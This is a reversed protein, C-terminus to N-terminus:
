LNPKPTNFRPTIMMGELEQMLLKCAYPIHLETFQSYNECSDCRREGDDNPNVVSFLGCENCIYVTFKDSVDMMREKLFGMAGHTIMCNHTVVGNALFSEENEVQIDYVPHVGGPRIDIVKLNMTPLVESDRCVGYKKDCIVQSNENSIPENTDEAEEMDDNDETTNIIDQITDNNENNENDSTTSSASKTKKSVYKKAKSQSFWDKAGISELFETSTPFKSSPIKGGERNNILYEKLDSISPIAFNHLLPESEVFQEVAMEIIETKNLRENVLKINLLTEYIDIIEKKQRIVGERLRTYAVAAEMRQNKHCCYRFGIKEYFPILESKDLHLVIEYNREDDNERKKSASNVKQNQITVGKIDFKALWTKIQEMMKKLSDLKPKIKSKSFSIYTFTNKAITCTHGDGGFLGALFERILPLPCNPQLLFDPLTSDQKVKNGVMLGDILIINKILNIPIKVYYTNRSKDFFETQLIPEFLKIDDILREVDIIHGLYVIGKIETNNIYGDTLIYGLIRCFAMSKMYENFTNTKLILSSSVKFSWNKCDRLEDNVSITPYKVSCKLRTDNPKLENAKIWENNSTLLRHDPTCSIIRGDELYIDVCEREGKYLFNTQKAPNMGNKESNWGLVDIQKDNLDKIMISLGFSTTCPTDGKYCDREM